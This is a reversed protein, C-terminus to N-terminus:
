GRVQKPDGRRQLRQLDCDAVRSQHPPCRRLDARWEPRAHESGAAGHFVPRSVGAASRDGAARRPRSGRHPRGAAIGGTGHQLCDTRRGGGSGNGHGCARKDALSPVAAAVAIKEASPCLGSRAAKAWNRKWKSEATTAGSSATFRQWASGGDRLQHEFFPDFIKELVGPAIGSGNDRVELVVYDGPKLDVAGTPRPRDVRRSDTRVIVFGQRGEPIAEAANIILNMIIQQLQSSDAQVRPLDWRALLKLEVSRPISAQILECTTQLVQSLDVSEVLFNGKGAYALMQRTLHAAREGSKFAGELIPRLEHNAPLLDLAYSVGGVIGVLLNNFDHAVGGALIGISELKQRQHILQEARKQEEMDTFTGLWKVPHGSQLLPLARVLQWRYSRDAARLRCQLELPTVSRLSEEWAAAILARDEEMIFALWGRGLAEEPSAGTM